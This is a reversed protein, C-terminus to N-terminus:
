KQFLTDYISTIAAVHQKAGFRERADLKANERLEAMKDPHSALDLYAEALARPNDAPVIKGTVNDSIAEPNGGSDTAIVVTGLLMAEVLTRGLPEGVSPVLLADLAAIWPEGPYRYGLFHVRDGVGLEVAKARAVRELDGLAPGLVLGVYRHHPALSKLLAIAEIFVLPRKRAVLTGVYGLLHANEKEGIEHLVSKRAARREILQTRALDFPSYVVTSRKYASILGPPPASFKSVSVVHSALWPALLRLGISNTDGRHHWLLKMGCLRAATGWTAHTRGDNTHVIAVGHSKLFSMIQRLPRVANLAAVPNRLKARELRNPIPAPLFAAGERRFYEAVPGHTDHLVVLPRYRSHDLGRILGLASVHSGGLKDGIFPFCVTREGGTTGKSSIEEFTSMEDTGVVKDYM